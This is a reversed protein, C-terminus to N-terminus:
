LINWTRDNIVKILERMAPLYFTWTYLFGLMSEHIEGYSTFGLKIAVNAARDVLWLRTASGETAVTAATILSWLYARSGLQCLEPDPGLRRCAKALELGIRRAPRNSLRNTCLTGVILLALRVCDTLLTQTTPVDAAHKFRYTHLWHLQTRGTRCSWRADRLSGVDLRWVCKCVTAVDLMVRIPPHLGRDIIDDSKLIEELTWGMRYDLTEHVDELIELPMKPERGLMLATQQSMESDAAAAAAVQSGLWGLREPAMPEFSPVASLMPYDGNEMAVQFDATRIKEILFRGGPNEFDVYDLMKGLIGLHVRATNLDGTTWDALALTAMASITAMDVPMNSREIDELRHRLAKVAQAMYYQPSKLGELRLKMIHYLRASAFAFMAYLCHEYQMADTMAGQRVEQTPTIARFKHPLYQLKYPIHGSLVFSAYYSLLVDTEKSMPQTSINFPDISSGEIINAASLRWVSKMGDLSPTEQSRSKSRGHMVAESPKWQSHPSAENKRRGDRSDFFRRQAQQYSSRPQIRRSDRSPPNQRSSHPIEEEDLGKDYQTSSLLASATNADTTLISHKSFKIQLGERQRIALRQNQVFRRIERSSERDTNSLSESQTSKNVWHFQTRTPAPM